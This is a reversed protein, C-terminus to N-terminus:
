AADTNSDGVINKYKSKLVGSNKVADMGYPPDTSVMDAKEGRMLREVVGSDTCDGCIVRHEGCQWMQGLETHWEKQLEEARNVQPEADQAEDDKHLEKLMDDFEE